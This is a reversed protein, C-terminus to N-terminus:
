VAVRNIEAVARMPVSRVRRVPLPPQPLQQVVAHRIYKKRMRQALKGLYTDVVTDVDSESDSQPPLHEALGCRDYGGRWPPGGEDAAVLEDLAAPRRTHLLAYAAQTMLGGAICM